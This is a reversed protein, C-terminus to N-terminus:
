TGGDTVSRFQRSDLKAGHQSVYLGLALHLCYIVGSASSVLYQNTFGGVLFLAFSSLIAMQSWHKFPTAIKAALIGCLALLFAIGLMGFKALFGVWQVEYSFPVLPDRVLEKAYSGLGGGFWPSASWANLLASVQMDRAFDSAANRGVSFRQEFASNIWDFGLYTLGIILAMVLIKTRLRSFYVFPIALLFAAVVFLYRSFALVTSAIALVVFISVIAKPVRSFIEKYTFVAFLMIVTLFDYIILNIRVLGGTIGSSVLKYNLFKYFFYYIQSFDLWGEVLGLVISTKWIVFVLNGWFVALIFSEVRLLRHEVLVYFIFVLTFTTFFFSAEQIIHNPWALGKIIGVLMYFIIFILTSIVLLFLGISVRGQQQILSLVFTLATIIYIIHKLPLSSIYGSPLSVSLFALLLFTTAVFGLKPHASQLKM